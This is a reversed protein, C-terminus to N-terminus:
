YIYIILVKRGYNPIQDHTCYINFFFLYSVIIILKLSFKRGNLPTNRITYIIGLVDM